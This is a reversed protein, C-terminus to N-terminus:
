SGRKLKKKLVITESDIIYNKNKIKVLKLKSKKIIIIIECM